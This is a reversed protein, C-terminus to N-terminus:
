VYAVFKKNQAMDDMHDKLLWYLLVRPGITLVVLGLAILADRM